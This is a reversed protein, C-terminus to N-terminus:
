VSAKVRNRSDMLSFGVDRSLKRLRRSAAFDQPFTGLAKSINRSYSFSKANRLVMAGSNSAAEAQGNRRKPPCILSAAPGVGKKSLLCWGFVKVTIAPWVDSLILAKQCCVAASARPIGGPVRSGTRSFPYEKEPFLLSNWVCWVLSHL